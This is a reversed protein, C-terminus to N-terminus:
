KLCKLRWCYSSQTQHEELVSPILNGLIKAVSKIIEVIRNDVVDDDDDDAAAAAAVAVAAARFNFLRLPYWLVIYYTVFTEEAEASLEFPLGDTTNYTSSWSNRPGYCAIIWSTHRRDAKIPPSDHIPTTNNYLKLDVREEAEACFECLARYKDM